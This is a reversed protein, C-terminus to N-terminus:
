TMPGTPQTTPTPLRTALTEARIVLAQLRTVQGPTKVVSTPLRIVSYVMKTITELPGIISITTRSGTSTTEDSFVVSWQRDCLGGNWSSTQTIQDNSM